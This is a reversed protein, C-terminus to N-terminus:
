ESRRALGALVGLAAALVAVLATALREVQADLLTSRAERDALWQLNQRAVDVLAHGDEEGPGALAFIRRYADAAGDEGREAAINGVLLAAERRVATDAAADEVLPALLESAESWRTLRVLRRAEALATQAGNVKPPSSGVPLWEHRWSAHALAEVPARGDVLVRRAPPVSGLGDDELAWALRDLAGHRALVERAGAPPPGVWGLVLMNRTGPIRGIVADPFVRAFTGAVEHVVPDEVSLGGINLAAVGGPRLRSRVLAFFEATCLHPPLYIQQAYADVLIAGYRRGAAGLAVRGDVGAVVEMEEPLGFWRRGVGVLAEDIEIGTVRAAPDLALLQRAMTGAALGIVLVDRRGDDAPAGLLAPLVFADFYAGTWVQGPRTVSHFSDLGENLRLWRTGDEGEEVRVWQYVTELEELVHGATAPQQQPLVILGLPLLALAKRAGGAKTLRGLALGGALLGLGAVRVAGASGVWELLLHTSGFTGLLSGATGAALVRGTVRGPSHVVDKSLRVLWPTVAGLALMPTGFGLAAVLLSGLSVFPYAELLTLERPLTAPALFGVIEPLAFAVAGAFVMLGGPGPRRGREAWRGGLWQGAALAALVVGIVNTWVIQSQGFWPAMLRVAMLEVVMVAAGTVAAVLALGARSM